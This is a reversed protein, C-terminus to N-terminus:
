KSQRTINGAEKAAAAAAQAAAIDEVLSPLLLYSSGPIAASPPLLQPLDWGWLTVSQSALQFAAPLGTAVSPTLPAATPTPTHAAPPAPQRKGSNSSSNSSSAAKNARVFTALYQQAAPHTCPVALIKVEIKTYNLDKHQQQLPQLLELIQQRLEWCQQEQEESPQQQQEQSQPPFLVIAFTDIDSVGPIFNGQPLSGRLYVGALASGCAEKYASVTGDLL